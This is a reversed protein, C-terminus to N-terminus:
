YSNGSTRNYDEIEKDTLQDFLAIGLRRDQELPCILLCIVQNLLTFNDVTSEVTSVPDYLRLVSSGSSVANVIINNEEVKTRASACMTTISNGM